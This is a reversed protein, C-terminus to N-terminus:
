ETEGHLAEFIAEFAATAPNASFRVAGCLSQRRRNTIWAEAEEPTCHLTLALGKERLIPLLDREIADLSHPYDIQEVAKGRIFFGNWSCEPYDCDCDDPEWGAQEALWRIKEETTM